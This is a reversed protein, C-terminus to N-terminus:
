PEDPKVVDPKAPRKGARVSKRFALVVAVWLLLVILLKAFLDSSMPPTVKRDLWRDTM